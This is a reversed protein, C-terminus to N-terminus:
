CDADAIEQVGRQDAPIKVWEISSRGFRKARSLPDCQRSFILAACAGLTQAAWEQEALRLAEANDKNGGRRRDDM